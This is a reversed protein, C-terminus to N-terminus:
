IRAQVYRLSQLEILRFWTGYFERSFWINAVFAYVWRLRVRLVPFHRWSYDWCLVLVLSTFRWRTNQSRSWPYHLCRNLSHPRFTIPPDSAISSTLIYLMQGLVEERKCWDEKVMLKCLTWRTYKNSGSSDITQVRMSDSNFNGKNPSYSMPSKLTLRCAQYRKCTDGITHLWITASIKDQLKINFSSVAIQICWRM